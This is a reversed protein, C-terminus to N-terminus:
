SVAESALAAHDKWSDMSALPSDLDISRRPRRSLTRPKHLAPGPAPRVGLEAAVGGLVDATLPPAVLRSNAESDRGPKQNSQHPARSRVAAARKSWSSGPSNEGCTAGDEGGGGDSERTKNVGASAGRVTAPAAAAAILIDDLAMFSSFDATDNGDGDGDTDEERDVDGVNANRLVFRAGAQEEQNNNNDNGSGGRNEEELGSLSGDNDVMSDAPTSPISPAEYM